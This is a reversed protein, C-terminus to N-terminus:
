KWEYDTIQSMNIELDCKLMISQLKVKQKRSLFAFTKISSLFNREWVKLNPKELLTNCIPYHNM